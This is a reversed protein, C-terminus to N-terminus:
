NSVTKAKALLRTIEKVVPAVEYEEGQFFLKDEDTAYNRLYHKQDLGGFMARPGICFDAYGRPKVMDLWAELREDFHEFHNRFVRPRIPSDHLVELLTRLEDGRVSFEPRVPWLIKSVNAVSILFAQVSYWYKGHHENADKVAILAYECQNIVEKVFFTIRDPSSV